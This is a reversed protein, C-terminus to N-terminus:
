CIIASSADVRLFDKQLKIKSSFSKSYGPTDELFYLIFPIRITSKGVVRRAEELVSAAFYRTHTSDLQQKSNGTLNQQHPPAQSDSSTQPQRQATASSLTPVSVTGDALGM